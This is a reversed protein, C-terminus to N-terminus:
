RRGGFGFSADLLRLMLQPQRSAQALVAVAAQQLIQASTFEAMERAVDVDRIRSNAASLNEGLNANIRIISEFRNQSAGLGARQGAIRDMAADLLDSAGAAGGATLIDAGDIGLGAGSADTTLDIAVTDGAGIGVQIGLSGSTGDLLTIGNFETAVAIRTIEEGLAQFEADLYSRQQDSMTGNQSQVTLEKMRILLDSVTDLAGEAVQVLSVGDAANRNAVALAAIQSKLRESIALGAPDDAARNIRLGSSLREMSKQVRRTANFLHRQAQLAMINTNIRLGM